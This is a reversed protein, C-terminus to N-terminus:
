DFSAPQAVDTRAPLDLELGVDAFLEHMASGLGGQRADPGALSKRLIRRAQEEMSVGDRAAAIRLRSKVTEDLNRITLAAM